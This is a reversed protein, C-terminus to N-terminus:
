PEKAALATGAFAILAFKCHMKLSCCFTSHMQGHVCLALLIPEWLSIM